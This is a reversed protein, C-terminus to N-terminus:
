FIHGSRAAKTKLYSENHENSPFTHPVREEVIIGCHALATVKDPNNTMLRVREFGLLRLIKAAPLYVREDADFGLQENADMTDFGRDQLEYARLKNVLGIGRGEQALYLLVGAGVAAIEQTAGQLQDGCDCRLSGLLDGTFCESHLRTLVPADKDPEGVVIALHELGGDIPRFAIIRTNEAGLLPVRASSVARLTRAQTSDYQFIDGADVLLVDHRASWAALDDATPDVIEATVAAPLLRAIKILAVAASECDYTPTERVTVTLAARADEQLPPETTPDALNRIIEATMEQETSLTVIKGVTEALGLVAARRATIAMVPDSHSFTRMEGLADATIAEAAQVLIAIGSSGRVAVMRGRRIESVARDVALLSAPERSAPMSLLEFNNDSM